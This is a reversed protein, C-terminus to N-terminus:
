TMLRDDDHRPRVLAIGILMVGLAAWIWLSYREDLLLMSWIVGTGTVIYSVQGAFVAGAQGILWVYSMYVIVHIVSSLAFAARGTDFAATPNIFQGTSVALPAAILTGIVSAGFMLRVPDLGATGWKAVVNGEAAYCFPAILALPLIAVMARDPLSAEPLAILAVGILGLLLGALRRWTFWDTGLILAIPFAIMPITAIVISMIGAPLFAAARYGASNPILTGILAILLCFGITRKNIPLDKGQVLLTIGTLLTGIVMQWFIMGFPELGHTVAIKTLPQTLGWGAGLCLLFATLWFRTTM